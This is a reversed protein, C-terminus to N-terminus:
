RSSQILWGSLAAPAAATPESVGDAMRAVATPPLAVGLFPLRRGQSQRFAGGVTDSRRGSVTPVGGSLTPAGESLTAASERSM